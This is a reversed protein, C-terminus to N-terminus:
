FTGDLVEPDLLKGFSFTYGLQMNPAWSAMDSTRPILIGMFDIGLWVVNHKAILVALKGTPAMIYSESISYHDSSGAQMVEDSQRNRQMGCIGIGGKFFNNGFVGLASYEFFANQTPDNADQNIPIPWSIRGRFGANPKGGRINFVWNFCYLTKFNVQMSDYVYANLLPNWSQNFPYSKEAAKMQMVAIGIGAGFYKLGWEHELSVYVDPIGKWPGTFITDNGALPMGVKVRAQSHLGTPHVYYAMAGWRSQDAGLADVALRGMIGITPATVMGFNAPEEPRKVPEAERVPPNEPATEIVPGPETETEQVPKPVAAASKPPESSPFVAAIIDEAIRRPVDTYFDEIAGRYQYERYLLRRKEKVNYLALTFSFLTGIKGLSASAVIAAQAKEGLPIVCEANMCETGPEQKAEKMAALARSKDLVDLRHMAACRTRLADAILLADGESVGTAKLPLICISMAPAAPSVAAAPSQAFVPVCALMAVVCCRVFQRM